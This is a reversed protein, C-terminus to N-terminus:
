NLIEKHVNSYLFVWKCYKANKRKHMRWHYLVRPIHCFEGGGEYARLTIDYDQAGSVEEESLGIRLLYDREIMLFHTVCNHSYLLDLNLQTKFVPQLYIGPKEFLDEDCFFM